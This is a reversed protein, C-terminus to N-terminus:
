RNWEIIDEVRIPEDMNFRYKVMGTSEWIKCQHFFEFCIEITTEVTFKASHYATYHKVMEQFYQYVFIVNGM